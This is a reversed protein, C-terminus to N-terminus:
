LYVGVKEIIRSIMGCPLRCSQKGATVKSLGCIKERVFLSAAVALTQSVHCSDIIENSPRRESTHWTEICNEYQVDCFYNYFDGAKETSVNESSIENPELFKVSRNDDSYSM